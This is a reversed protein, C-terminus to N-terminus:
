SLIFEAASGNVQLLCLLCDFVMQSTVSLYDNVNPGVNLDLPLHISHASALAYKFANGFFHQRMGKILYHLFLPNRVLNLAKKEVALM